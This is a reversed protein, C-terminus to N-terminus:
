GNRVKKRSPVLETVKRIASRPIALARSHTGGDDKIPTDGKLRLMVESDEDVYGVTKILVPKLQDIAREDVWSEHSASDEWVVEVIREAM